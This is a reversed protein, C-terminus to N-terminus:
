QLFIKNFASTDIKMMKEHRCPMDQITTLTVQITPRQLTNLVGTIVYYKSSEYICIEVRTMGAKGFKEASLNDKNQSFIIMIFIISRKLDNKSDFLIYRGTLDLARISRASILTSIYMGSPAICM